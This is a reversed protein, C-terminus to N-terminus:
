ACCAPNGLCFNIDLCILKMEIDLLTLQKKPGLTCNILGGPNVIDKFQAM